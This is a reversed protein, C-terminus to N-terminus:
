KITDFQGASIGVFIDETIDNVSYTLINCKDQKHEPTRIEYRVDYHGNWKSNICGILTMLETKTGKFLYKTCKGYDQDKRFLVERVYINWLKSM